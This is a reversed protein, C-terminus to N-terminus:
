KFHGGDRFFLVELGGKVLILRKGRPSGILDASTFLFPLWTCRADERGHPASPRPRTHLRVPCKAKSISHGGQLCPRPLAAAGLVLRLDPPQVQEQSSQCVRHASTGPGLLGARGRSRGPQSGRRAGRDPLAGPPPPPGPSVVKRLKRGAPAPAFRFCEGVGM